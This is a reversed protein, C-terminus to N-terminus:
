SRGNRIVDLLAYTADEFRGLRAVPYAVGTRILESFQRKILGNCCDLLRGIDDPVIADEKFFRQEPWDVDHHAVGKNRVERINEILELYPALEGDISQADPDRDLASLFRKLKFFSAAREDPDFLCAIEIFVINRHAAITACFFDRYRHDHIESSFEECAKGKGVMSFWIEYSARAFNISLAM